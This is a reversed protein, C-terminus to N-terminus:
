LNKCKEEIDDIKSNIRKNEEEIIERMHAVQPDDKLTPSILNLVKAATSIWDQRKKVENIEDLLKLKESIKANEDKMEEENNVM